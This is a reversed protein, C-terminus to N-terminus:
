VGERAEIRGAKVAEQLAAHDRDTQDAYGEAFTAIANPFTNGTGIYGTIAAGDGSRAHARALGAGCLQAYLTLGTPEITELDASGKVDRLQRWYFDRHEEGRGRIWGLFIDSAAQTLRQGEVVRQGHNRYRSARNHRELVSATAEKVQLFLPDGDGQGELLVILCRTGVSGVGVVKMAVDVFRYRSLLFKRDDGLSRRYDEFTKRIFDPDALPTERMSMVLPPAHKIRRAGDVVETLKAQAQLNDRTRAKEIGRETRRRRAGKLAALIVDVDIRAYWVDLLRMAAFERM